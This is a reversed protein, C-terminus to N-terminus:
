TQEAQIIGLEKGSKNGLLAAGREGAVDLKKKKRRGEKESCRLGGGGKKKKHTEGM